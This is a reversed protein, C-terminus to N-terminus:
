QEIGEHHLWLRLTPYFCSPVVFVLELIRLIIPTSLLLHLM